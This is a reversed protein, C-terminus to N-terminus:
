NAIAAEFRAAAEKWNVVSWVAKLYDPKVNQKRGSETLVTRAVFLPFIFFM